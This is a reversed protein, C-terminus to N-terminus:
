LKFTIPISYVVDVPENAKIAPELKPLRQIIREAEDKM